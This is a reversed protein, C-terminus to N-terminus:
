LCKVPRGAELLTTSGYCAPAASFHDLRNLLAKARRSATNAVRSLVSSHRRRRWSEVSKRVNEANSKHEEALIAEMEIAVISRFSSGEASRAKMSLLELPETLSRIPLNQPEEALISVCDSAM